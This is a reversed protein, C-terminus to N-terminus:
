LVGRLGSESSSYNGTQCLLPSLFKAKLTCPNNEREWLQRSAPQLYTRQGLGTVPCLTIKNYRGSEQTVLKKLKTKM